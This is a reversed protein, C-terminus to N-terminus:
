VVFRVQISAPTAPTFELYPNVTWGEFPLTYTQNCALSSITAEWYLDATAYPSSCASLQAFFYLSVRLRHASSDYFVYILLGIFDSGSLPLINSSYKFSPNSLNFPPVIWDGSDFANNWADVWSSDIICDPFDNPDDGLKVLVYDEPFTVVATTCPSFCSKVEKMCVNDLYADYPTGSAGESLVLFGVYVPDAGIASDIASGTTVSSSNFATVKVFSDSPTSGTVKGFNKSVNKWSSTSSISTYGAASTVFVDAGQKACVWVKLGTGTSTHLFEGCIASSHSLCELPNELPDDLLIVSWVGDAGSQSSILKWGPAPRGVDGDQDFSATGGAPNSDLNMGTGDTSEQTCGTLNCPSDVSSPIYSCCCKRRRGPKGM